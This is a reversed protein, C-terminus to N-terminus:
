VFNDLLYIGAFFSNFKVFYVKPHLVFHSFWETLIVFFFIEWYLNSIFILNQFSISKKGWFVISTFLNNLTKKFVLLYCKTLSNNVPLSYIMFFIRHIWHFLQRNTFINEFLNLKYWIEFIILDVKHYIKLNKPRM